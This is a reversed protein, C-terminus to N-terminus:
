MEHTPGFDMTFVLERQDNYNNMTKIVKSLSVFEDFLGLQKLFPTANVGLAIAAGLLQLYQTV